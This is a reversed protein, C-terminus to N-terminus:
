LVRSNGPVEALIDFMRKKRSTVMKDCLTCAYFKQRHKQDKHAKLAEQNAYGRGCKECICHKGSKIGHAEELHKRIQKKTDFSKGCAECILSQDQVNLKNITEKHRWSSKSDDVRCTPSAYQHNKLYVHLSYSKPCFECQYPKHEPHKQDMHFRMKPAVDFFECLECKLRNKHYFRVHDQLTHKTKCVTSCFECMFPGRDDHENKKHLLLGRRHYGVFDCQDCPHLPAKRHASNYHNCLGLYDKFTEKCEPCTEREKPGGLSRPRLFPPLIGCVHHKFQPKSRFCIHCKECQHERPRGYMISDNCVESHQTLIHERVEERQDYINGCFFCQFTRDTDLRMMQRKQKEVRNQRQEESLKEPHMRSIHAQLLKKLPTRFDCADCLLPEHKLMHKQFLSDRTFGEGCISCKKHFCDEREHKAWSAPHM